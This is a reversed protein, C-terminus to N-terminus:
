EGTGECSGALVLVVYVMVRMVIRMEFHPTGTHRHHLLALEAGKPPRVQTAAPWVRGVVQGCWVTCV